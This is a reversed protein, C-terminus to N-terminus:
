MLSAVKLNWSSNVHVCCSMWSFVVLHPIPTLYISQYIHQNM